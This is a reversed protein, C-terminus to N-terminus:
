QILPPEQCYLTISVRNEMRQMKAGGLRIIFSRGVLCYGVYVLYMGGGECLGIM